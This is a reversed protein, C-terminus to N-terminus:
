LVVRDQLKVLLRLEIVEQDLSAPLNTVTVEVHNSILVLLLDTLTKAHLLAGLHQILDGYERLGAHVECAQFLPTLILM